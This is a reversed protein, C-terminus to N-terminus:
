IEEDEIEVADILNLIQNMAERLARVKGTDLDGLGSILKKEIPDPLSKSLEAGKESLSILTVRRDGQKRIRNALEKKELRDIIGTMNSPTMFLKRSLEVSSLPGHRSLTRLVGSQPGTLGFGRSMKSSDLYVSRYLQRISGVIEKIILENEASM